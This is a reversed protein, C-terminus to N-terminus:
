NIIELDPEIVIGPSSLQNPSPYTGSAPNTSLNNLLKFEFTPHNNIIWGQNGTAFKCDNIIFKRNTGLGGFGLGTEFVHNKSKFSCREFVLNCQMTNGYYEGFDLCNVKGNSNTEIAEFQCNIAKLNYQPRTNTNGAALYTYGKVYCNEMYTSTGGSGGGVATQVQSDNQYIKCNYFDIIRGDGGGAGLGAFAQEPATLTLNHFSIDCPGAYPTVIGGWGNRTYKVISSNGIGIVKVGTAGTPYIFFPSYGGGYTLTANVLLFTNNTRPTLGPYNTISYTGPMIVMVDNAQMFYIAVNLTKFPRIVSERQGSQMPPSASYDNGYVSDVVIIRSFKGLSQVLDYISHASRGTSTDGAWLDSFPQDVAGGTSSTPNYLKIKNLNM